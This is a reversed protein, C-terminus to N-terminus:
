LFARLSAAARLYNKGSWKDFFSYFEATDKEAECHKCVKTV